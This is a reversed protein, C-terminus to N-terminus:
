WNAGSAKTETHLYYHLHQTHTHKHTCQINTCTTVAPFFADHKHTVHCWTDPCPLFPFTFLPSFIPAFILHNFPFSLSPIPSLFLHFLSQLSHHTTHRSCSVVSSRYLLLDSYLCIYSCPFYFISLLLFPSFHSPSIFLFLSYSLIFFPSSPRSFSLCPIPQFSLCLSPFHTPSLSLVAKYFCITQGSLVHFVECQLWFPLCSKSHLGTLWGTFFVPGWSSLWRVTRDNVWAELQVSLWNMMQFALSDWLSDTLWRSM